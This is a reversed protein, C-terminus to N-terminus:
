RPGENSNGGCPPWEQPAGDGLCLRGRGDHARGAGEGGLRLSAPAVATSAHGMVGRLYPTAHDLYVSTVEGRGSLMSRTAPSRMRLVLRSPNAATVPKSAAHPGAPSPGVALGALCLAALPDGAIAAQRGGVLGHGSPVLQSVGASIFAPCVATLLGVIGAAARADSKLMVNVIEEVLWAVM